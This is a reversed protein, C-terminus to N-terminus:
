EASPLVGEPPAGEPKTVAVWESTQVPVNNQNLVTVELTIRKISPRPKIQKVAVVIRIQDGALVPRRYRVNTQTFYASQKDLVGLRYALGTARSFILAGHAIAGALKQHRAYEPNTHIPNNDLSLEAFNNIDDQTITSYGSVLVQGESLDRASSSKPEVANDTKMM